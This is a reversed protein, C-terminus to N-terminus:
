LVEYSAIDFPHSRIRWCATDAAWGSPLDSRTDHRTFGFTQGSALKGRIRKGQTEKPQKGPNPSMM